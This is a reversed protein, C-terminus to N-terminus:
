PFIAIMRATSAVKLADLLFGVVEQLSGVPFNKVNGGGPLNDGNLLQGLLFTARQFDM